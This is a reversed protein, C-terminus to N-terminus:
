VHRVVDGTAFRVKPARAYPDGPARYGAACACLTRYGQAPLGLIEDYKAPDLGEMPCTDVGLAAAATMFNGLAIYVQLAAWHDRKATDMGKVVAGVMMGRYPALSEVTVGRVGAMREVFRDIDAEGLAARHAFVVYHSADTVQSQNWSATRLKARVAADGVVVFRWPQIGFSSPTLALTEELAAWAPGAIKRTTDFQKVAYRWRLTELLADPSLHNM